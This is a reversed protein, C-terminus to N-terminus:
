LVSWYYREYIATYFKDHYDIYKDCSDDTEELLRFEYFKLFCEPNDVFFKIAAKTNIIKFDDNIFAYIEQKTKNFLLPGKIHIYLDSFIPDTEKLGCFYINFINYDDNVSNYEDCKTLLQM